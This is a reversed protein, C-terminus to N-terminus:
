KMSPNQPDSRTLEKDRHWERAPEKVYLRLVTGCTRCLDAYFRETGTLLKWAKYALGIHGADATQNVLVGTVIDSGKCYSCVRAGGKPFGTYSDNEGEM